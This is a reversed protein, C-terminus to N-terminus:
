HFYKIQDIIYFGNLRFSFVRPDNPNLSVPKINSELSLINNGKKLETKIEIEKTLSEKFIFCKTSDNVKCTLNGPSVLIVDLVINVSQNEHSNISIKGANSSWRWTSNVDMELDYFGSLYNVVPKHFVNPNTTTFGLLENLKVQQGIEFVTVGKIRFGDSLVFCRITGNPVTLLQRDDILNIGANDGMSILYCLKNRNVHKSQTYITHVISDVSYILYGGDFTSQEVYTLSAIAGSTKLVNVDRGTKNKFYRTWYDPQFLTWNWLTPASISDLKNSDKYIHSELFADILVWKSADHAQCEAVIANNVQVSYALSSIILASLIYLIRRRAFIYLIITFLLAIAFFSYSSYLYDTTGAEVWVQYKSTLSILINPTIIAYIIASFCVLYKSLKIKKLFIKDKIWLLLVFLIISITFANANLINYIDIYGRKIDIFFKFGPFLGASYTAIAICIRSINFSHLTNGEYESPYYYKYAWYAFLCIITIALHWKIINLVKFFNLWNKQKCEIFVIAVLIPLYSFWIENTFMTVLWFFLSGLLFWLRKARLYFILLIYSLVYLTAFFTVSFPFAVLMNHQHISNQWLTLLLAVFLYGIFRNRLLVGALIGLSIILLLISFIQIFKFYIINNFIYPVWTFPGGFLFGIRGQGRACGIWFNYDSMAVIMDDNTDFRSNFVSLVIGYTFLFILITIVKWDRNFRAVLKHKNIDEM